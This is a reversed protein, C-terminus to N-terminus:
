RNFINHKINVNIENASRRSTEICKWSDWGDKWKENENTLENVKRNYEVNAYFLKINKNFLIM